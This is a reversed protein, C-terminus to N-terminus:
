FIVRKIMLIAYDKTEGLMKDNIRNEIEELNDRFLSYIFKSTIPLLRKVHITVTINKNNITTFNYTILIKM